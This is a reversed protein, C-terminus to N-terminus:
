YYYFMIKGPPKLTLSKLHPLCSNTLATLDGADEPSFQVKLTLENLRDLYIPALGGDREFTFTEWFLPPFIYKPADVTLSTPMCKNLPPYELNRKLLRTKERVILNEKHVINRSAIYISLDELQTMCTTMHDLVETSWGSQIISFTRVSVNKRLGKWVTDVPVESICLAVVGKLENVLKVVTQKLGDDLHYETGQVFIM